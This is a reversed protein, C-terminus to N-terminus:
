LHIHFASLTMLRSTIVLFSLLPFLILSRAKSHGMIFLSLLLTSVLWHFVSCSSGVLYPSSFGTDQSGLALRADLSLSHPSLVSFQGNYLNNTILCNPSTPSALARLTPHLCGRVTRQSELKEKRLDMRRIM